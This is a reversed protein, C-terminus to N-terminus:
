RRTSRDRKWFRGSLMPYLWSLGLEHRTGITLSRPIVESTDRALGPLTSISDLTKRIEPLVRQGAESLAVRRTTREFVEVGLYEELQRIRQGFASPSLSVSQAARRFNMLRAGAVFCELAEVPPLNQNRHLSDEPM